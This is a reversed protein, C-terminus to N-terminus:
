CDIRSSGAPEARVAREIPTWPANSSLRTRSAAALDTFEAADSEQSGSGLLIGFPVWVFLTTPRLYVIGLVGM